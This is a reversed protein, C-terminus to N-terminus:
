QHWLFFYYIHHYCLFILSSPILFGPILNMKVDTHARETVINKVKIIPIIIGIRLTAIIMLHSMKFSFIQLVYLLM